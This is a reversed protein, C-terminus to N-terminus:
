GPFADLGAGEVFAPYVEPWMRSVLDAREKRAKQIGARLKKIEARLTACANPLASKTESRAVKLEACLALATQRSETIEEGLFQFSTGALFAENWERAKEAAHEAFSDAARAADTKAEDADAYSFLDRFHIAANVEGSSDSWENKYIGGERYAPLFRAKGKRAPLQYVCGRLADDDQFGSDCLWGKHRDRARLDRIEDQWGVFRLGLDRPNCWQMGNAMPAGLVSGSRLARPYRQRGATVDDMAYGRAPAPKYGLQRFWRYSNLFPTNFRTTM